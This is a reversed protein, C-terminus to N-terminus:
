RFVEDNPIDNNPVNGPPPLPIFKPPSLLADYLLNSRHFSLLYVWISSARDLSSMFKKNWNEKLLM